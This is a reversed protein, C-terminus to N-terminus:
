HMAVIRIFAWARYLLHIYREGAVSLLSTLMKHTIMQLYGTITVFVLSKLVWGLSLVLQSSLVRCVVNHSVHYMGWNPASVSPMQGRASTTYAGDTYFKNVNPLFSTANELYMGGACKCIIPLTYIM